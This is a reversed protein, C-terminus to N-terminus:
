EGSYINFRRSRGVLNSPLQMKDDSKNVRKINRKSITAIRIVERTPSIGFEPALECALNYKIAREYGPPFSLQETLNSITVKPLEFISVFHFELEKTLVPYLTMTINPMDYNVWICQPYTSTVSKLALNSYQLQNIIKIPFSIGSSADKFYTSDDLDIPRNGVFDGTPGLTRVATNAPWNFVQDQTSYVALNEISWSDIMLNFASLSDRFEEPTPEEGEAVVGILRLSGKIIDKLTSM